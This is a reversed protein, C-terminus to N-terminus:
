FEESYEDFDQVVIPNHYTITSRAGSSSSKTNFVPASADPVNIDNLDDLDPLMTPQRERDVPPTIECDISRSRYDKSKSDIATVTDMQVKHVKVSGDAGLRVSPHLNGTSASGKLEYRKQIQRRLCYVAILLLLL